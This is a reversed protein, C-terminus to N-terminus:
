HQTKRDGIQDLTDKNETIDQENASLLTDGFLQRSLNGIM